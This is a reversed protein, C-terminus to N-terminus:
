GAQATPRIPSGARSPRRPLPSRHGRRNPDLPLTIAPPSIQDAVVRTTEAVVAALGDVVQIGQRGLLDLFEAAKASRCFVEYSLRPPSIAVIAAPALAKEHASAYLCKVAGLSHGALALRPGCRIRLFEAWGLLDFRCDDVNEYAAGLRRGGTDGVLTSIGDHGRTNARLVAVGLSLFREALFELLTSQYFNSGTGHCLAVVDLPLSRPTSPDPFQLAGDLLFGDPTRARVLDVIM